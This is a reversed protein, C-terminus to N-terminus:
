EKSKKISQNALQAPTDKMQKDVVEQDNAM